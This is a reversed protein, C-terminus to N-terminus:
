FEIDELSSLWYNHFEATQLFKYGEGFTEM